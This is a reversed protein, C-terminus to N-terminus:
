SKTAKVITVPVPCLRVVQEAKSGLMLHKLGTRGQSGLVVLCPQLKEVVQLIRPVPLGKILMREAKDILKGYPDEKAMKTLFEEMMDGAVDELRRLQKKVGKARYYGPADGPDHVVHLIVLPANM